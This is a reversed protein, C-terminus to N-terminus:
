LKRIFKDCYYNDFLSNERQSLKLFLWCKRVMNRLADVLERRSFNHIAAEFDMVTNIDIYQFERKINGFCRDPSFITHRVRLFSLRVSTCGVMEQSIAHLVNWTRTWTYQTTLSFLSNTSHVIDNRSSNLFWRRLGLGVNAIRRKELYFFYLTKRLAKM